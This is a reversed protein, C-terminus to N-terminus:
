LLNDSISNILIIIIQSGTKSIYIHIYLAHFLCYTRQNRLSRVAETFHWFIEWMVMLVADSVGVRTGGIILSGYFNACARVDKMRAGIKTVTVLFIALKRFKLKM